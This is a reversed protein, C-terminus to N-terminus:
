RAVSALLGFVRNDIKSVGASVASRRESKNISQSTDPRQTSQLNRGKERTTQYCDPVKLPIKSLDLRISRSKGSSKVRSDRSISHQPTNLGTTTGRSSSSARLLLSAPTSKGERKKSESRETGGRSPARTSYEALIKPKHLMVGGGSTTPAAALNNRFKMLANMLRSETNRSTERLLVPHALLPGKPTPLSHRPRLASSNDGKQLCALKRDLSGLLAKVEKKCDALEGETEEGICLESLTHNVQTKIDLKEGLLRSRERRSARRGQDMESNEEMIESLTKKLDVKGEGSVLGSNKLLGQLVVQKGAMLTKVKVPSVGYEGTERTALVTKETKKHMVVPVRFKEGSELGWLFHGANMNINSINEKDEESLRFGACYDVDESDSVRNALVLPLDYSGAWDDDM